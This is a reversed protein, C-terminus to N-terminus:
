NFKFYMSELPNKNEEQTENENENEEEPAKKLTLYERYNRIESSKPLEKFLGIEGFFNLSVVKSASGFRNKLLIAARYRDRMGSFSGNPGENIIPYGLYEKRKQLAPHYLAICVNCDNYQNGSGKLDNATPEALGGKIRQIDGANRNEQMIVTFSIQYKERLSVALSSIDDMEQKLAKGQPCRVLGIHDIVVLVLQEEKNKIYKTRKDNPEKVFTGWKKLLDSMSKQFSNADLPKDFITLRKEVTELWKKSKLVYEYLDDSLTERWSLLKSYEIVIDYTEWIYLGLIKALLVEASMELSFYVLDIPKDPNDKLIRYIHSYLVLSSKGGGSQAFVLTYIGKQVGGTYFDLKPLGTSLGINKGERGKDIQSFLSEVIEM